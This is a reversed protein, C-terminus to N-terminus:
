YGLRLANGGPALISAITPAQRAIDWAWLTVLAGLAICALLFALRNGAGTLHRRPEVWVAAAFPALFPILPLHFRPEALIPVYAILTSVVLLLVLDRGRRDSAGAMGFPASAAVAIWPVVLWLMVGVLAPAPIPGFVNNSYFFILERAELGVLYALRRPLLSLAREPDARIFGLAQELSWQDREVDDLFRTPILAPGAVFGGNGEPHYGVFLNYGISNEIFAPRGAIRSNRVAWPIVVVGVALALVAARKWGAACVLWGAALLVFISLAGRTLAAAGLVLGALAASAWRRDDAARLVLLVSALALPIFLNESALGLPYAWLIPYLAVVAGALAAVRSACRLRLALLATLPALIAGLVAHAIRAAAVRHAEGSIRYVMALFAPYGPPRFLSVFGEAPIEDPSLDAEYYRDFYRQLGVVYDRQYWRYGHGRSVSLGLMDYQYMDDLAIPLDLFTVALGLRPLLALLFLGVLLRRSPTRTRPEPPSSTM